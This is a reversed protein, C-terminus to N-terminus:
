ATIYRSMAGGRSLIRQLENSKDAVVQLYSFFLWLYLVAPIFIIIWAWILNGDINM